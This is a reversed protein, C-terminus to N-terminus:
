KQYTRPIDANYSWQPPVYSVECRLAGYRGGSGIPILTSCGSLCGIAAATLAVIAIWKLAILLDIM